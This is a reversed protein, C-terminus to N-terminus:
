LLTMQKCNASAEKKVPVVTNTYYESFQYKPFYSATQFLKM